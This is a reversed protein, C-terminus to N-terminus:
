LLPRRLRRLGASRAPGLRWRSTSLRLTHDVQLQLVLRYGLKAAVIAAGLGSLGSLWAGLLALLLPNATLGRRCGRPSAARELWLKVATKEPCAHAVVWRHITVRVWSCCRKGLGLGLWHAFADLVLM